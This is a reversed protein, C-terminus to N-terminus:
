GFSGKKVDYKLWRDLDHVLKNEGDEQKVGVFFGKVLMVEGSEANVFTLVLNIHLGGSVAMGLLGGGEAFAKAKTERGGFGRVFVLTDSHEKENWKNESIEDGLTFRGKKVDKLRKLMAPSISDFRAQLDAVQGQLHPDAELMEATPTAESVALGSDQFARIMARGLLPTVKEDEREMSQGGKMTNKVLKLSPPFIIVRHITTEGAKLRPHRYDGLYMQKAVGTAGLSVM